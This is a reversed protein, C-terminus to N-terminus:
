VLQPIRYMFSTNGISTPLKSSFSLITQSWHLIVPLVAKEVLLKTTARGGVVNFGLEELTTSIRKLSVGEKTPVCSKKLDPIPAYIGYWECIMSICAVGCDMADHQLVSPIRRTTM